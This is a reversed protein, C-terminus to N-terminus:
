RSILTDNDHDNSFSSPVLCIRMNYKTELSFESRQKSSISM